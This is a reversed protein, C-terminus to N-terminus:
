VEKELYFITIEPPVGFRIPYRSTGIGSNVYLNTQSSIHYLGKVYKEAMATTMQSVFPIKVQGGHSHGSVILDFGLDNYCDAIDPEHTMLISYQNEESQFNELILNINPNGLLADDVGGLFLKDKKNLMISVAENQLLQFGSQEMIMKYKRVAGGGYDRNGWVAYKGHKAELSSLVETLMEDNHYEAHNEYLDGTFLIIDPKQQQVSKVIKKLNETTFNESIQIDSIQVIKFDESYGTQLAVKDIQLSYPEIKMAYYLLVISILLLIVIALLSVRIIKLMFKIM